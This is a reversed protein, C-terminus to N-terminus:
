DKTILNCYHKVVIEWSLYEKYLNRAGNGIRELQSPSDLMNLISDIWSQQSYPNKVFVVNENDKLLSLDTMDGCATITAIGLELAAAMSGNKLSGGGIGNEGLEELHLFLQLQGLFRKMNLPDVVGTVIINEHITFGVKELINPYDPNFKGILIFRIDSRKKVVEKIVEIFFLNVRSAFCGIYILGNNDFSAREYKIHEFNSPIPLLEMKTDLLLSANFKTSTFSAYSLWKLGVAIMKQAIGILNQKIGFHLGTRVGVEHFMIITKRNRLKLLLFIFILYFPIGKKSYTYPVYQFLFLSPRKVDHQLLHDWCSICKFKKVSIPKIEDSYISQEKWIGIVLSSINRKQLQQSLCLSYDGVGCIVPPLNPSVIIVDAM